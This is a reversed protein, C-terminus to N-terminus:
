PVQVDCSGSRCKGFLLPFPPATLHHKHCPSGDALRVGNRRQATKVTPECTVVCLEQDLSNPDVKPIYSNGCAAKAARKWEERVPPSQAIAPFALALFLSALLLRKQTMPM